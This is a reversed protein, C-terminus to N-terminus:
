CWGNNWCDGGWGPNGWNGGWWGGRWGWGRHRWGRHRWGWQDAQARGSEGEEPNMEVPEEMPAVDGRMQAPVIPPRRLYQTVSNLEPTKFQHVYAQDFTEVPVAVVASALAFAIFTKM